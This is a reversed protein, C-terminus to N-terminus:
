THMGTVGRGITYSHASQHTCATRGETRGERGGSVGVASKPLLVLSKSSGGGRGGERGGERM